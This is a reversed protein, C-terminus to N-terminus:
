ELYTFNLKEGCCPNNIGYVEKRVSRNNSDNNKNSNNKNYKECLFVLVGEYCYWIFVFSSLILHSVLSVSERARGGEGRRGRGEAREQGALQVILEHGHLPAVDEGLSTELPRVHLLDASSIGIYALKRIDLILYNLRDIITANTEKNRMRKTM